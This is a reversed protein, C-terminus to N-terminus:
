NICVKFTITKAWEPIKIEKVVEVWIKEIAVWEWEKSIDWPEEKWWEAKDEEPTEPEWKNNWKDEMMTKADEMLKKTLEDMNDAWYMTM